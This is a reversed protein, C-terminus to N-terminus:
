FDGRWENVFRNGNVDRIRNRFTLEETIRNLTGDPATFRYRLTFTKSGPEYTSEGDPTVEVDSSPDPLITVAGGGFTPVELLFSHGKLPDNTGRADGTVKLRTPGVTTLARISETVVAQYRYNEKVEEAGEKTRTVTGEYHYNGFQKAYYSISVAIHNKADNLRDVGVPETLKVPLVYEGTLAKADALFKLSDLKVYVFGRLLGAPINIYDSNSLTYYDAPLLTKGSAVLSPDIVFHAGCDSPNEALGALNIGVGIQLGEGVVVNRNYTQNAFLVSTYPYRVPEDDFSCSSLLAAAAVASILLRKM